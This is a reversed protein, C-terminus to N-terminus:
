RRAASAERAQLDEKRHRRATRRLQIIRATGIGVVILGGAVAAMLLALALSFQGHLGLFQIKVKENNQAIFIILAVLLVLAGATVVWARSLRTHRLKHSELSPPATTPSQPAESAEAERAKREM